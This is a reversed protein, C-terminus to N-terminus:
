FVAVEQQGARGRGVGDFVMFARTDCPCLAPLRFDGGRLLNIRPM